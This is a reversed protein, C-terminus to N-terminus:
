LGLSVGIGVVGTCRMIIWRNVLSGLHNVLSEQWRLFVILQGAGNVQEGSERFVGWICIIFRSNYYKRVFLMSSRWGGIGGPTSTVEAASNYETWGIGINRFGAVWGGSTGSYLWRNIM